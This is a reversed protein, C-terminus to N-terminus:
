LQIAPVWVGDRETESHPQKNRHEALYRVWAGYRTDIDGKQYGMWLDYGCKAGREQSVLETINRVINAYKGSRKIRISPLTILLQNKM